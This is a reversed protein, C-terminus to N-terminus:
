ERTELRLQVHAVPHHSGPHVLDDVGLEFLAELHDFVLAFLEERYM